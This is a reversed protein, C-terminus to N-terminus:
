SWYYRGGQLHRLRCDRLDADRRPMNSAEPSPSFIDSRPPHPVLCVFTLHVAYVILFFPACAERRRRCTTAALNEDTALRLPSKRSSITRARSLLPRLTIATAAKPSTLQLSVRKAPRAQHLPPSSPPLVQLLQHPPFPVIQPIIVRSTSRNSFTPTSPAPNHRAPYQGTKINSLLIRSPLPLISLRPPHAPPKKTLTQSSM